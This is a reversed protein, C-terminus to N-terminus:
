SVVPLLMTVICLVFTDTNESVGQIDSSDYYSYDKLVEALCQSFQVYRLTM